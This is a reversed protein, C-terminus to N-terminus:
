PPTSRMSSSAGAEPATARTATKWPMATGTGPAGIANSRIFTTQRARSRHNAVIDRSASDGSGARLVASIQNRSRVALDSRQCGQVAIAPCFVVRAEISVHGLLRWLHGLLNDDDVFPVRPHAGDTYPYRIAVAQVRAPTDIAAQYLRAYFPRVGRGDTSTGEPFLAVREGRTLASVMRNATKGGGQGRELFLTGVQSALLGILPWHAVEQKAVFLGDTCALLCPIDLWSIHNAVLLVPAAYAQGLCHVHVGMIRLLTRMWWRVLRSRRPAAGQPRIHNLPLLWLACLLAGGTLHAGVRLTRWCRRLFRPM